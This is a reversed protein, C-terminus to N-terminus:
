QAQAQQGRPPPYGSAMLSRFSAREAHSLRNRAWCSIKVSIDLSKSPASSDAASYSTSSVTVRQALWVARRRSTVAFMSMLWGLTERRTSRITRAPQELLARVRLVAAAGEHVGGLRAGARETLERGHM